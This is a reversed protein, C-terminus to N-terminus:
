EWISIRRIAWALPSSPKISAKREPRSKWLSIAESTKRTSGSSTVPSIRALILAM